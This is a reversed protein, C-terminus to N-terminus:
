DGNRGGSQAAHGPPVSGRPHDARAARRRTQQSHGSQRRARQGAAPARSGAACATRRRARQKRRRARQRRAPPATDPLAPSPAAQWPAIVVAELESVSQLAAEVAAYETESAVLLQFTRDFEEAELKEEAPDCALVTGLPALAGLVMWARVSKMLCDASLTVAVHYVCLGSEAAAEAGAREHEALPFAAAPAANPAPEVAPVPTEAQTRLAHLCAVLAPIDTGPAATDAQAEAVADVLGGLADLCDLLANVIPTSVSLCDHRLDDLINEMEHTLDGISLFGMARSSGKLTHAARFLIQLM